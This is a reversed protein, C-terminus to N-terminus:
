LIASVTGFSDFDDLLPDMSALSDRREPKKEMLLQEQAKQKEKASNRQQMYISTPLIAACVSGLMLYKFQPTKAAKTAESYVKPDLKM